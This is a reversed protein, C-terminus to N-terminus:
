LVCVWVVVASVSVGVGRYVYAWVVVLLDDADLEALHREVRVVGDVRAEVPHVGDQAADEGEDGDEPTHTQKRPTTKFLYIYTQTQTHTHTYTYIHTYTYTKKRPTYVPGGEM